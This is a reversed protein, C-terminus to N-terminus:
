FGLIWSAFNFYVFVVCCDLITTLIPTAILAPDLKLKKALLPLSFGLFDAIFIVLILPLAVALGLLWSGHQITVCTFAIIGLLIGLMLSVFFEKFFVKFYDKFTIEKLSLSRIVITSIQTGCNGGAGMLMPLLCILASISAFTAEYAEILMSTFIGTILLIGLWTFRRGVLKLPSTKLYPEDDSTHIAAMKEFDETTEEIVVDLVDDVTVIGVIRHEKDVVPLALFDYKSFISAIKEQDMDTTAVVINDTMLEDVIQNKTGLLLEKITLVGKLTKKDDVVYLVNITEADKCQKRIHDFAEDVTTGVKLRVFEPTMIAGATDEEYSLYKNITKRTEPTAGKLVKEVINAPMEELFDVADDTALEEIIFSLENNNLYGIITEQADPNIYSFVEASLAKPLLRYVLITTAPDEIRDLADAIDPILMDQLTAKLGKFDRNEILTAIEEQTM